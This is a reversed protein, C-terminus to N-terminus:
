GRGRRAREGPPAARQHPRASATECRRERETHALSCGRLGCAGVVVSPPALPPGSSPRAARTAHPTCAVSSACVVAVPRTASSAASTAFRLVLVSAAAGCGEGILTTQDQDGGFAGVHRDLWRLANVIDGFGNMGGNGQTTRNGGSPTDTVLFGLPGLRYNLTVVVAQASAALNAGDLRCDIFSVIRGWAGDAWTNLARSFGGLGAHPSPRKSGV